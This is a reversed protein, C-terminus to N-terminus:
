YVGSIKKSNINGALKGINIKILDAVSNETEINKTKRSFM